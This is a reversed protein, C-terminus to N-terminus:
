RKLKAQLRAIRRTVYARDAAPSLALARQFDLLAEELRGAAELVEARGSYVRWDGPRFQEMWKWDELARSWAASADRGANELARGLRAYCLARQARAGPHETRRVLAANMDAIASEFGSAAQDVDGTVGALLGWAQGRRYLADFETPRTKLVITLADIAGQAALACDRRQSSAWKAESLGLTGIQLHTRWRNPDLARARTLLEGARRFDAEPSGQKRQTAEGRARYLAGLDSTVAAEEAWETDTKGLALVAELEAIAKTQLPLFSQGRALRISAHEALIRGRQLRVMGEPAGESLARDVAVLARDFRPAPDDGREGLAVAFRRHVSALNTWARFDAGAGAAETFCREVEALAALADGGRARRVFVIQEWIIGRATWYQFGSSPSRRVGAIRELAGLAAEYQEMPDEGQQWRRGGEALLALAYFQLAAPWGRDVAPGSVGAAAAPAGRLAHAMAALLSAEGELFPDDVVGALAGAAAEFDAGAFLQVGAAYRAVGGGQEAARFWAAESARALHRETERLWERQRPTPELRSYRVAGDAVWIAPLGQAAGFRAMAVRALFLHPFPDSSQEAEAALDREGAAEDGAFFRGLALWARPLALDPHASEADRVAAVVSALDREPPGHDVDHWRDELRRMAVGSAARLARYCQRLEAERSEREADAQERGAAADSDRVRSSQRAIWALGVGALGVVLVAAAVAAPHRVARARVKRLPGSRRVRVAEGRLVRELDEALAAATPYRAAPDKALCQRVVAELAPPVSRNLERLAPAPAELVAQLTAVMSDGEFPPRGACLAYLTAGLSYIDSAATAPEGRVQEPPMYAPTGVIEGSRTLRAAAEDLARVRALGFDTIRPMRSDALMINAPKLDRHIVGADHAYQMARAAKMMISASELPTLEGERAVAELSRGEVVDMVLYPKGEHEGADHVTVIGPHGALGAAARAERLFRERLRPDDAGHMLFKVAFERNLDTRRARYVAGMGGRGMERLIEYPGVHSGIM